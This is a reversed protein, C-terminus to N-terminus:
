ESLRISFMRAGCERLREFHGDSDCEDRVDAEGGEAIHEAGCDTDIVDETEGVDGDAEGDEAIDAEGNDHTEPVLDQVLELFTYSMVHCVLSRRVSKHIQRLEQVKTHLALPDKSHYMTLCSLVDGASRVDFESGDENTWVFDCNEVTWDLFRQIDDKSVVCVSLNTPPERWEVVVWENEGMSRAIEILEEVGIDSYTNM